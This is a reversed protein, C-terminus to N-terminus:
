QKSANLFNKGGLVATKDVALFFASGGSRAVQIIQEM